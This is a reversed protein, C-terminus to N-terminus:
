RLAIASQQLNSFDASRFLPDDGKALVVIALDVRNSIFSRDVMDIQCIGNELLHKGIDSNCSANGNRTVSLRRACDCQGRVRYFSATEVCRTSRRPKPDAVHTKDPPIRRIVNRFIVTAAWSQQAGEGFGGYRCLFDTYSKIKQLCSTCVFSLTRESTNEDAM